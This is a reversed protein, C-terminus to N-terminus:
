CTGEALFHLSVLIGWTFMSDLLYTGSIYVKLHVFVVIVYDIFMM